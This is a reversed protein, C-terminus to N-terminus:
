DSLPPSSGPPISEENLCLRSANHSLSIRWELKSNYKIGRGKEEDREQERERKRERERMRRAPQTPSEEETIRGEAEM